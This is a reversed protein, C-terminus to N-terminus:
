SHNELREVLHEHKCKVVGGGVGNPHRWGTGACDPCRSVDIPKTSRVPELFEAILEDAEGSRHIKTAYGGPNTIGEARLSEAYKRCEQLTFCSLVCVGETNTHTEKNHTEKNPESEALPPMKRVPENKLLPIRPLLVKFRVGRLSLDRGGVVNEIRQIFGYSELTVLHKRIQTPEIQCHECLKAISVVCENSDWGASLRYLREMVVRPAPKLDKLLHDLLEYPFRLHPTDPPLLKVPESKSLPQTKRVPENQLPETRNGIPTRTPNEVPTIKRVPESKLLPQAEKAKKRRADDVAYLDAIGLLKPKSEPM